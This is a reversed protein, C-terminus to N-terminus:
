DECLYKLQEDSLIINKLTNGLTFDITYLTIGREMLYNDLTADIINRNYVQTGQKSISIIDKKDFYSVSEICKAEAKEQITSNKVHIELRKYEKKM